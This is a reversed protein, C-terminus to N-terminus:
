LMYIMKIFMQLTLLVIIYLHNKGRQGPFCHYLSSCEKGFIYFIYDSHKSDCNVLKMVM